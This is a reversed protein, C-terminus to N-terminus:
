GGQTGRVAWFRGAATHIYFEDATGVGMRGRERTLIAVEHAGWMALDDAGVPEWESDPAYSLARTTMRTADDDPDLPRAVM